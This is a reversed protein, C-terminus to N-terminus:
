KKVRVREKNGFVKPAAPKTTGPLTSKPAQGPKPKPQKALHHSEKEPM